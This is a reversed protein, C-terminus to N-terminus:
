HCAKAQEGNICVEDYAFRLEGRRREIPQLQKTSLPLAQLVQKKLRYIQTNIHTEEMGLNKSLQSKEIWGKESESYGAANDAVRQRALLLLLYHHTRNGLDFSTGNILFKLAVHEENQSVNFDVVINLPEDDNQTIIKTEDQNTADIFLWNCQDTYLLDGNKLQSIGAASEYMWYGLDSQYLMFQPSQENPLMMIGNLEINPINIAQPVIMSHPADTNLVSWTTSNLSAFNIKDGQVLRHKGGKVIHLANIYTGNSSNDQLLWYAGNWSITAHSRSAELNSLLTTVLGPHRGFVHQKHLWIQEKTQSDVLVAM